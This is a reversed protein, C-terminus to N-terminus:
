KAVGEVSIDAFIALEKGVVDELLVDFSPEDSDTVLDVKKTGDLNVEALRFTITTGDPKPFKTMDILGIITVTATDKSTATLRLRATVDTPNLGLVYSEWRPMDNAGNESLAQVLDNTVNAFVPKTPDSYIDSLYTALWTREVPVGVSGDIPYRFEPVTEGVTYPQPAGTPANMPAYGSACYETLVEVSFYGGSVAITGTGTTALVTGGSAAAFIGNPINDM